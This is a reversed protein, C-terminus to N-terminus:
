LQSKSFRRIYFDEPKSDQNEAMTLFMLISIHTLPKDWRKALAGAKVPGFTRIRGDGGNQQGTTCDTACREKFAPTTPEFGVPVALCM